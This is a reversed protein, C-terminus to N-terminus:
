PIAAVVLVVVVIVDCGGSDGVVTVVVVVSSLKVKVDEVKLKQPFDRLFAENEWRGCETKSPLRWCSLKMKVDEV